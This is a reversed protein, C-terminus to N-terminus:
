WSRHQEHVSEIGDYEDIFYDIGDPIEIVRLSASSGDAKEKLTEVALILHESTRDYGGDMGDVYGYGFWNDKKSEELEKKARECGNKAMLEAAEKSISFGGYCKNLVIKMKIENKFGV